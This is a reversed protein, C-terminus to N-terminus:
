PSLDPGCGQRQGQMCYGGIYSSHSADVPASWGFRREGWSGSGEARQSGIRFLNWEYSEHFQTISQEVLGCQGRVEPGM